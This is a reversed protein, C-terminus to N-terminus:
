KFGQFLNIYFQTSQIISPITFELLKLMEKEKNHWCHLNNRPVRISTDRGVEIIHARMLIVEHVCLVINM